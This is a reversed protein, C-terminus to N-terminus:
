LVENLAGHVSSKFALTWLAYQFWYNYLQTGFQKNIAEYLSTRQAEDTSSRATDFDKNITTDNFAGFNVLNDCAAPPNNGCHWCVYQTDDDAGPHNRWLTADYKRGVAINILTSQDAVPNLSVKIGVNQLMNQVLVADATTDPDSTHNLTFALPKGTE